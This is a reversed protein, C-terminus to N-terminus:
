TSNALAFWSTQSNDPWITEVRVPRSNGQPDHSCVSVPAIMWTFAQYDGDLAFVSFAQHGTMCVSFLILKRLLVLESFPASDRMSQGFSLKLGHFIGQLRPERERVSALLSSDCTRFCHHSGTQQTNPTGKQRM